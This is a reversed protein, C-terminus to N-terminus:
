PIRRWLPDGSSGGGLPDGSTLDGGPRESVWRANARACHSRRRNVAQWCGYVRGAERLCRLSDTFRDGGVPDLIVDVGGSAKVEDKWDGDSRVM